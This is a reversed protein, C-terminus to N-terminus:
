KALKLIMEIDHVATTKPLQNTKQRNIFENISIQLRKSCEKNALELVEKKNLSIVDDKTVM